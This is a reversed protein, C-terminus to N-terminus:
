TRPRWSINYSLNAPFASSGHSPRGRDLGRGWRADRFLDIRNFFEGRHSHMVKGLFNVRNSARYAIAFSLQFM